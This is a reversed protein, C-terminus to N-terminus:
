IMYLNMETTSHSKSALFSKVDKVLKRVQYLFYITEGPWINLLEVYFNYIQHAMEDNNNSVYFSLFYLIFYTM